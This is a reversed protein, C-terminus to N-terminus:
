RGGGLSSEYAERAVSGSGEAATRPLGEDATPDVPRGSVRRFRGERARRPTMRAVLLFSIIVTGQMLAVIAAPVGLSLQAEFSGTQLAGLGLATWLCGIALGSGVVGVVIGIYWDDIMNEKIRFKDGLLVVSGAVGSLAGSVLFTKLALGRVEFGAYRAVSPSMGVTRLKFGFVTFRLTAWIAMGCAIAVLVGASMRSEPLLVPLRASMPVLRSEPNDLEPDRLVTNVLRAVLLVGIFNMMLTTVLENAGRYIRMLASPLIWLAGGVAGAVLCVLVHLGTPLSLETAVLLSATAGLLAQGQMGINIVRGRIGFVFSLGLLALAAAVNMTQGISYRSGLAGDFMTDLTEAPSIGVFLSAMSGVFLALAAALLSRRLSLHPIDM